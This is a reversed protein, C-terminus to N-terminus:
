STAEDDLRQEADHYQLQLEQQNLSNIDRRHKAKVEDLVRHATAVNEIAKYLELTQEKTLSM